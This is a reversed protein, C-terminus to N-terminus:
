GVEITPSLSMAAALTHFRKLVVEGLLAADAAAHGLRLRGHGHEATLTFRDLVEAVGGSVTEGLRAALGLVRARAAAEPALLGVIPAFTEAGQRATYRGFAALALFIREDHAVQLGPHGIVQRFADEARYDPHMRWSTDGLLCAARRLRAEGASEDAALEQAAM